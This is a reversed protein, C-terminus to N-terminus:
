HDWSGTYRTDTCITEDDHMGKNKYIDHLADPDSVSDGTVLPTICIYLICYVRSLSTGGEHNAYSNKRLSFAKLLCRHPTINNCCYKSQYRIFLLPGM